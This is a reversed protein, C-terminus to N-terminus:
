EILAGYIVDIGYRQAIDYADKVVNIGLIIKRKAKRNLIREAIECKQIFWYVDEEEVLSKVELLYLEENHIYIDIELKFGPKGTYKGDYDVYIFKEVKGPEIGRSELVDKYIKFVLKEFQWGLRRGLSGIAVKLEGIAKTLENMQKQFNSAQEQLTLITRTHESIQQQLTLIAKTHENIQQQLNIMQQQLGFVQQQLNSVEQQLVKVQEQLSLIAKTHENVQKQLNSVQEQLLKIAKTNEDISQLIKDIGLYGLVTYRFEEDKKLLELMLKKLENESINM